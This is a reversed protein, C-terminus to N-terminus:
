FRGFNLVEAVDGLRVPSPLRWLSDFGQVSLGDASSGGCVLVAPNEPLDSQCLVLFGRGTVRDLGM